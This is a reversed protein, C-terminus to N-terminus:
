RKSEPIKHKFNELKKENETDWPIKEKLRDKMPMTSIMVENEEMVKACLKLVDWTRAVMKRTTKGLLPDLLQGDEYCM